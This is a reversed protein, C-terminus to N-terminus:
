RSLNTLLRGVELEQSARGPMLMELVLSLNSTANEEEEESEEEEEEEEQWVGVSLGTRRVHCLVTWEVQIQKMFIDSDFSQCEVSNWPWCIEESLQNISFDKWDKVKREFFKNCYHMSHLIGLIYIDTLYKESASNTRSRNLLPQLWCRYHLSAAIKEITTARGIIQQRCTPCKRFFNMEILIAWIALYHIGISTQIENADRACRMDM